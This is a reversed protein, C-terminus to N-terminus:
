KRETELFHAIRQDADEALRGQYQGEGRRLFVMAPLTTVGHRRSFTGSLDLYVPVPAPAPGLFRRITSADEQFNVTIVRAQQGWRAELAAAREVIGRCRPSWSAWFIAIIDGRNLDRETLGEGELAGLYLVDKDIRPEVSQAVAASGSGPCLVVVWVLLALVATRAPPPVAQM